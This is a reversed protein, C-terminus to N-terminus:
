PTLLDPAWPRRRPTFFMVVKQGGGSVLKFPPSSLSLPRPGGGAVGLGPIQCQSSFSVSCRQPTVPSTGLSLWFLLCGVGSLLGTARASGLVPQASPAQKLLPHFPLGLCVFMSCWMVSFCCSVCGSLYVCLVCLSICLYSGRWNWVCVDHSLSCSVVGGCVRPGELRAYQALLM